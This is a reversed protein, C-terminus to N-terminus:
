GVGTAVERAWRYDAESEETDADDVVYAIEDALYRHHINHPTAPLKLAAYVTELYEPCNYLLQGVKADPRVGLAELATAM